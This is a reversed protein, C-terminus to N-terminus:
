KIKLGGNQYDKYSNELDILGSDFLHGSKRKEIPPYEMYNGFMKTLFQHYGKPCRIQSDEFTLYVYDSFWERPFVLKKLKRSWVYGTYEASDFDWKGLLRIYKKWFFDRPLVRLPICVLWTIKHGFSYNKPYKGKTKDCLRVYNTVSNLFKSKLRKEGPIGALPMIDIWVGEYTDKWYIFCNETMMTRNDMVKIFCLRDHKLTWPTFLELYEPLAKPAIEIFRQFDKLPMAIDLDDDWPIFGKHRVAGLCTGGIAFYRLDNKECVASVQEFINLIRQQIINNNM